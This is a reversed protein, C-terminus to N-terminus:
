PEKRASAPSDGRPMRIGLCGGPAEIALNLHDAMGRLWLGALSRPADPPVEAELSPPLPSDTLWRLVWAGPVAEAEMRLPGPAAWPLIQRTFAVAWDQLLPAPWSVRGAGADVLEVPCRFLTGAAELRKALGAEWDKWPIPETYPLRGLAMARAMSILVKGDELLTELRAHNQSDFPLAPDGLDVVSQLGTLLNNFDHLTARWLDEPDM